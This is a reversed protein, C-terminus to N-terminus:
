KNTSINLQKSTVCRRNVVTSGLILYSQPKGATNKPTQSFLKSLLNGAKVGCWVQTCIEYRDTLPHSLDM